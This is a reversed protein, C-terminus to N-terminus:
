SFCRKFEKICEQEEDLYVSEWSEGYLREWATGDENTRYSIDEDTVLQITNYSYKEIFKM